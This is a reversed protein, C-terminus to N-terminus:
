RTSLPLDESESLFNPPLEASWPGRLVTTLSTAGEGGERYLRPQDGRGARSKSLHFSSQARPQDDELHPVCEGTGARHGPQDGRASPVPTHQDVQGPLGVGQSPLKAM